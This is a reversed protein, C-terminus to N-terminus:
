VAEGLTLAFQDSRDTWQAAVRFRARQLYEAVEDQRYKYSSETWIRERSGIALDIGAARIRVRQARRAVLHMEVKSAVPDWVAQHAFREVKFDGDLERNVRVLLNRNFAATVGLPDDYALLLEREPKVLDTGLLLADGDRLNRRISDLFAAAAPPDFNGINSGLFLVLTRGPSSARLADNLGEEYSAAHVSVLVDSAAGVAAAASGLATSSIDVLHVHVTSRLPGAADLLLRLKTGNGPGLEVLTSPSEALRFLEAGHAALLRCEARTIRYWPLCCIAEFLASGLADYLYRSPLQRPDLTLYYQVDAAFRATAPNAGAPVVGHAAYEVGGSM